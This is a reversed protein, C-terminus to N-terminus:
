AAPETWDLQSTDPPLPGDKAYRLGESTIHYLIYDACPDSQTATWYGGEVLTVISQKSLKEGSHDFCFKWDYPFTRTAILADGNAVRKLIAATALALTGPVRKPRTAKKKQITEDM